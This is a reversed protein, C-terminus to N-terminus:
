RAETPCCIPLCENKELAEYLSPSKKCVPDIRCCGVMYGWLLILFCVVWWIKRRMRSRRERQQSLMM